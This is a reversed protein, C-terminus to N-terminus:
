RTVFRALWVPGSLAGTNTGYALYREDPSWVLSLGAAPDPFEIRYTAVMMQGTAGASAVVIEAQAEGTIVGYAVKDGHPSWALGSIRRASESIPHLGSGDQRSTYARETGREAAIFAVREGDPAAASEVVPKPPGPVRRFDPYAIRVRWWETTAEGGPSALGVFLHLADPYWSLTTIVRGHPDWQIARLTAGNPSTLWLQSPSRPDNLHHVAVALRDGGPAWALLRALGRIPIRRLERGDPRVTWLVGRDVFALVNAGASWAVATVADGSAIKSGTPDGLRHVWVGDRGGYAFRRGDPSWAIPSLAARDTARAVEAVKLLRVGVPAPRRRVQCATLAAAALLMM